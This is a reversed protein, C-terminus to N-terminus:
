TKDGYDQPEEAVRFNLRSGLEPEPALADAVTCFGKSVASCTRLLRLEALMRDGHYESLTRDFLEELQESSFGAETAVTVYDFYEPSPV